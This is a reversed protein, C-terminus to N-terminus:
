AHGCETRQRGVHFTAQVKTKGQAVGQALRLERQSVQRRRKRGNGVAALQPLSEAM